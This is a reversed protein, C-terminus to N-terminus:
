RSSVNRRAVVSIPHEAGFAFSGPKFFISTAHPLVVGPAHGYFDVRSLGSNRFAEYFGYGEANDCIIMGDEAMLKQAIDTMECRYLGDIVIVDYRRLNVDGLIKNVDSACAEPSEM